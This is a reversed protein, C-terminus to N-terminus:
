TSREQVGNNAKLIFFPPLCDDAAAIVIEFKQVENRAIVFTCQKKITSLLNKCKKHVLILFM